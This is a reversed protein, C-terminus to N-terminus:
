PSTPIPSWSPYWDDSPHNTLNYIGSGDSNMIYIEYNGDRSSEFAIKSFEEPISESM